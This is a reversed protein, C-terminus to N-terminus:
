FASSEIETVSDPLDIGTLSSCHSFISEPIVTIHDPLIVSELASCGDFVQKGIETVNDSMIIRKVTTNRAFAKDAIRTVISPITVQEKEGKYRSLQLKKRCLQIIFGEEHLDDIQRKIKGSILDKPPPPATFEIQGCGDFANESIETVSHPITLRSLSVCNRFANKKM